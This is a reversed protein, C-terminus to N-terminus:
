SYILPSTHLSICIDADLVIACAGKSEASGAHIAAEKGFNRTFYLPRIRPDQVASAAEDASGNDVALLEVEPELDVAALITALNRRISPAENFIPVILSIMASMSM